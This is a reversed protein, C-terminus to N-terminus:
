NSHQVFIQFFLFQCICLQFFHFYFRQIKKFGINTLNAFWFGSILQLCIEVFSWLTKGIFPEASPPIKNLQKTACLTSAVVGTSQPIFHLQWEDRMANCSVHAVCRHHVFILQKLGLLWNSLECTIFAFREGSGFNRFACLFM